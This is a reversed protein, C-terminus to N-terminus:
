KKLLLTVFMGLGVAMLISQLPKARIADELTHQAAQVQQRGQQYAASAADAGQRVMEQGQQVMEQAKDRVQAGAEQARERVQAGAEQARDRAQAGVETPSREPNGFPRQDAMISQEEM